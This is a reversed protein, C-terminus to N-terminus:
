GGINHIIFIYIHIYIYMNYIYAMYKDQFQPAWEFM